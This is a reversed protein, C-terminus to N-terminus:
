SKSVDFVIIEILEKYEDPMVLTLAKELDEPTVPRSIDSPSKTVLKYDTGYWLVLYIGRGGACPDRAYREILQEKPSKWLEVHYHRKIEIPLNMDNYLVKIDARKHEAYDGEREAQINLRSLDRNLRELLRDRGDNEPRPDNPRSYQDVNWFM